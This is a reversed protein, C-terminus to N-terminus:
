EMEKIIGVIETRIKKLRDIVEHTRTVGAKNDKLLKKAGALTLKKEKLLYYILGVDGIDKKSYYRTGGPSKRPSILPFEKEWYRLTSEQVKFMGAVEGISYYMKEEATGM